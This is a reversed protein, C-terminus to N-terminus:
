IWVIFHTIFIATGYKIM